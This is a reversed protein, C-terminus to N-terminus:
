IGVVAEALSDVDTSRAGGQGPETACDDLALSGTIKVIQENKPPSEPFNSDPKGVFARIIFGRTEEHVLFVAINKGTNDKVLFIGGINMKFEVFNFTHHKQIHVEEGDPNVRYLLVTTGTHNM